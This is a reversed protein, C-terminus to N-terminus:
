DDLSIEKTVPVPQLSRLYVSEQPYQYAFAGGSEKVMNKTANLRKQRKLEITSASDEPTPFYNAYEDAMEQAGIVAGSEKRLKARVWEEAMTRYDKQEDTRFPTSVARNLGLTSLVPNNQLIDATGSFLDAPSKSITELGQLAQEANAMRQAYGSTKLQQETLKPPETKQYLDKESIIGAQYAAIDGPTIKGLQPENMDQWQQPAGGMGGGMLGQVYQQRMAREREAAAMSAQAQEIQARQNAIQARQNAVQAQYLPSSIDRQYNAQDIQYDFLPKMDGTLSGIMQLREQIPIQAFDPNSTLQGLREQVAQRRQADLIQQAQAQRQLANQKQIEVGQQFKDLTGPEATNRLLLGIKSILPLDNYTQVPELPAQQAPPIQFDNIAM